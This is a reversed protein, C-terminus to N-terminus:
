SLASCTSYKSKAATLCLLTSPTYRIPQEINVFVRVALGYWWHPVSRFLVLCSRSAWGAAADVLWESKSSDTSSERKRDTKV